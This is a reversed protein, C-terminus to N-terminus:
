SDKVIPSISSNKEKTEIPKRGSYNQGNDEGGEQLIQAVINNQIHLRPFRQEMIGHDQISEHTIQEYFLDFEKNVMCM